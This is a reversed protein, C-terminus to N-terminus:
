KRNIIGYLFLKISEEIVQAKDPYLKKFKENSMVEKVMLSLHEATFMILEINVDPRIDGSKQADAYLKKAFEVAETNKQELFKGYDPDKYSLVDNTFADGMSGLVKMKFAMIEKMKEAFSIDKRKLIKMSGKLIRDYSDKIIYTLIDFKNKFSRYFTMKSVKSEKCIEEVSIRKVGYNSFLEQATDVLKNQKLTLSQEM